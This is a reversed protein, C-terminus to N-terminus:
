SASGSGSNSVAIPIAIAAAIITTLVWPNGLLDGLKGRVVANGEVLMAADRASPPATGPTWLRYTDITKGSVVQYVGGRLGKVAYLGNADTVTRVLETGNQQLSVPVKAAATGEATVIQGVLVGGERLAIDRIVSGAESAAIQGPLQQLEGPAAAFTAQPLLVGLCALSVIVDKGLKRMKRYGMNYKGM